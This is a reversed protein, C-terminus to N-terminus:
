WTAQRIILPIKGKNEEQPTAPFSLSSQLLYSSSLQTAEASQASQQRGTTSSLLSCILTDQQRVGTLSDEESKTRKIKKEGRRKGQRRRTKRYYWRSSSQIVIEPLEQSGPKGYSERPMVVFIIQETQRVVSCAAM